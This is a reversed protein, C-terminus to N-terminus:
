GLLGITHLLISMSFAYLRNCVLGIIEDLHMAVQVVGPPSSIPARRVLSGKPDEGAGANKETQESM